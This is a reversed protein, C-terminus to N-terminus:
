LSGRTEGDLGTGCLARSGAGATRNSPAGVVEKRILGQGVAQPCECVGGPPLAGRGPAGLPRAGRECCWGCQRYFQRLSVPTRHALSRRTGLSWSQSLFSIAPFVNTSRSPEVSALPGTDPHSPPAPLLSTGLFCGQRQPKRGMRAQSEGSVVRLGGEDSQNETHSVARSDAAGQGYGWGLGPWSWKPERGEAAQPTQAVQEAGGSGVGGGVRTPHSRPQAM